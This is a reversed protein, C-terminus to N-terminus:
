FGLKTQSNPCHRSLHWPLIYEFIVCLSNKQHSTSYPLVTVISVLCHTRQPRTDKGQWARGTCQLQTPLPVRKKVSLHFVYQHGTTATCQVFFYHLNIKWKFPSNGQWALWALQTSMNLTAEKLNTCSIIPLWHEQPGDLRGSQSVSTENTDCVRGDEQIWYNVPRLVLTINVTIQYFIQYVRQHIFWSLFDLIM